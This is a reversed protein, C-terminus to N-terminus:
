ILHQELAFHTAANRSTIGLKSYISRLHANVTRPSIVLAQAVQADSQGRAVLRLVELERESLGYPHTPSLSKHKNTRATTRTRDPSMPQGQVGIVQEPTMTRGEAWAQAFAQEGLEARVAAKMREYEAHEGLTTFLTFLDFPRVSRTAGGLTEAVGWLQAAWGADGRRAVMCGWEQLYLAIREQDDMQRSLAISRECLTSAKARESRALAIGALWSLVHAINTQLGLAEFLALSEELWSQAKTM